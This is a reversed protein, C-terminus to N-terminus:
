PNLVCKNTLLFMYIFMCTDLSVYVTCSYQCSVVVFTDVIDGSVFLGSVNKIIVNVVINKYHLDYNHIISMIMSLNM